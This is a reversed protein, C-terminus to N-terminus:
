MALVCSEQKKVACVSRCQMSILFVQLTNEIEKLTDQESVWTGGGKRHLDEARRRDDCKNCQTEEGKENVISMASGVCM